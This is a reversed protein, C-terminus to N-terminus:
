LKKKKIYIYIDYCFGFYTQETASTRDKPNPPIPIRGKGETFTCNQNNLLSTIICILIKTRCLTWKVLRNEDTVPSAFIFRM